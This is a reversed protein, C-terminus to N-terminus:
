NSDLVTKQKEEKGRKIEATLDHQKLEPEWGDPWARAVLLESFAVNRHHGSRCLCGVHLVAAEEGEEEEGMEERVGHESGSARNQEAVGGGDGGGGVGDLTGDNDSDGDGSIELLFAPM